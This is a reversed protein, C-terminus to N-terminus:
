NLLRQGALLQTLNGREAKPSQHPLSREDLALPFHKATREFSELQLIKHFAFHTRKLTLKGLRTPGDTYSCIAIVPEREREPILYKSQGMIQCQCLIIPLAHM